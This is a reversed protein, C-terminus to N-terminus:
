VKENILPFNNKLLFSMIYEVIEEQLAKEEVKKEMLVERAIEVLKPLYEKEIQNMTCYHLWLYNRFFKLNLKPYPKNTRNVYNEFIHEKHEPFWVYGDPNMINSVRYPQTQLLKDHKSTRVKHLFLEDLEEKDINRIIKEFYFGKLMVHYHYRAKYVFCIKSEPYYILINVLEIKKRIELYDFVEYVLFKENSLRSYEELSVDPTIIEVVDGFGDRIINKYLRIHDDRNKYHRSLQLVHEQVNFIRKSYLQGSCFLDVEKMESVRTDWYPEHSNSLEM